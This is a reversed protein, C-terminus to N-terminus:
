RMSELNTILVERSEEIKRSIEDAADGEGTQASVCAEALNRHAELLVAVLEKEIAKSIAKDEDETLRVRLIDAIRDTVKRAHQQLEM